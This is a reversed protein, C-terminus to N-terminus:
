CTMEYLKFHKTSPHINYWSTFVEIMDWLKKNRMVSYPQMDKLIVSNFGGLEKRKPKIKTGKEHVM